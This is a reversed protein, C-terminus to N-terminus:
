QTAVVQGDERAWLTGFVAVGGEVEIKPASVTTPHEFTGCQSGKEIALEREAIV